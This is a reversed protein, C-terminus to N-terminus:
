QYAWNSIKIMDDNLQMLSLNIYHFVSFFSICWQYISFIIFARLYIKWAYRCASTIMFIVSWKISKSIWEHPLERHMKTASWINRLIGTKYILGEHWVWDFAKFIDLFIGRVDFWIICLIDHVISILQYECPIQHDSDQIILVSFITIM